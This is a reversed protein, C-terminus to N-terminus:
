KTLPTEWSGQERLSLKETTGAAHQVRFGPQWSKPNKQLDNKHPVRLELSWAETTRPRM